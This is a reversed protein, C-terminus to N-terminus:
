EGKLIMKLDSALRVPLDTKEHLISMIGITANSLARFFIYHSQYKSFYAVADLDAPVILKNPLRRWHKQKDALQQLHAHLGRISKEAQARGWTDQTYGWIDDQAKDAPPFFLYDAMNLNSTATLSMKRLLRSMLAKM